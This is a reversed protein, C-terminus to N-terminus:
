ARGDHGPRRAQGTSSTAASPRRRSRQHDDPRAGRLGTAGPRGGALLRSPRDAGVRSSSSSWCCSCAAARIPVAWCRDSSRRTPGCSSRSPCNASAPTSRRNASPRSAASDTSTPACTPRPTRSARGSSSSGASTSVPRRCGSRSPSRSSRSCSRSWSPASSSGSGTPGGAPASRARPRAPARPDAADTIRPRRPLAITRPRAGEYVAVRLRRARLPHAPQAPGPLRASRGPRGAGWEGLEFEYGEAHQGRDQRERVEHQRRGYTKRRSSQHRKSM